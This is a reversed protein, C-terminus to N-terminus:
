GAFLSKERQAEKEAKLVQAELTQMQIQMLSLCEKQGPYPKVLIRKYENLAEQSSQRTLGKWAPNEELERTQTQSNAADHSHDEIGVEPTSISGSEAYSISEVFDRVEAAVDEGHITKITSMFVIYVTELVSRIFRAQHKLNSIDTDLLDKAMIHPPWPLWIVPAGFVCEPCHDLIPFILSCEVPLHRPHLYQKCLEQKPNKKHLIGRGCYQIAYLHCHKCSDFFVLVSGCM